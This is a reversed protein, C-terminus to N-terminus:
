IQPVFGINTYPLHALYTRKHWVRQLSCIVSRCSFEMKEVNFRAQLQMVERLKDRLQMEMASVELGTSANQESVAAQLNMCAAHLRQSVSAYEGRM